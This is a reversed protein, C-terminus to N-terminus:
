TSKTLKTTIIDTLPFDMLISVNIGKHYYKSQRQISLFRVKLIFEILETLSMSTYNTGPYKQKLYQRSCGIADAVDYISYHLYTRRRRPPVTM